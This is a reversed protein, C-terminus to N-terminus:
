GLLGGLHHLTRGAYFGVRGLAGPKEVANAAVLPSRAIVTGNALVQVEGLRQGQRVPLAAEVPMVVREVLPRDVHVVRLAPKAAVLRVPDKGYATHVNGYVRDGDIAWVTRYRSLGWVLLRSLDANRGERTEGGLITAYITVGGGRAAAVQSWGADDTHGTKVGIV